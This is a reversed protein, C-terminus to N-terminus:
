GNLISMKEAVSMYDKDECKWSCYMDSNRADSESENYIKGCAFCRSVAYNDYMM